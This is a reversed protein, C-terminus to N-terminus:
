YSRRGKWRDLKRRGQLKRMVGIDRKRKWSGHTRSMGQSNEDSMKMQETGDMTGFIEYNQQEKDTSLIGNQKHKVNMKM